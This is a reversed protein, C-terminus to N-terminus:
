AVLLTPRSFPSLGNPQVAENCETDGARLAPPPLLVEAIFEVIIIFTSQLYTLSCILLQQEYFLDRTYTLANVNPVNIFV